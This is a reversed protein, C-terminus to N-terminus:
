DLAALAALAELKEEMSTTDEMIEDLEETDMNSHIINSLQIPNGLYEQYSVGLNRNSLSMFELGPLLKIASVGFSILAILVLVFFIKVARKGLNKGFLYFLSYLGFLAIEYPILLTGGAFLQLAIFIGSWISNTIPSKSHLAKVFFMFAFPILSYGALVNLNGYIVFSHMYGNLMYLLAAIFAGKKSDKFTLFLFYMGLGSLFFYTITALNMAIYINKFLLLYIFNFDLFYYEPQAYLPQGSYYHPTWLHLQGQNLSQRLNESIFSVDNIHHINNMIKTTSIISNLFIITLLFLLAIFIANERNFKKFM